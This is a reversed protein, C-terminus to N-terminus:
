EHSAKRAFGMWEAFSFNSESDLYRRYNEQARTLRPVKTIDGYIVDATPHCNRVNTAKDGDFVVGIYHGCDAVIVGSKGGVTVARGTEAPVGYHERFYQYNM